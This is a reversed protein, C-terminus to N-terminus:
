TAATSIEDLAKVLKDVDKISTYVHPTVRVCSINEWVIGTTHIKYKDFLQSGLEGPTLGKVSVGCIACGYAPKLSTHITVKPMQRAKEAWYNKLYHIRQQKRLSGIGNHFNIAEGIAQEIPFSRTGLTEFKRIDNSNPKDNCLLPWIKEIKDKKIWLMGSGIPASLFKHLSTGFYDCELDPIKFDLLGFSHAGDVIVEIGKAHAMRAIKKVPMIQGVWNIVHTIHIIKTQPTIAAEFAKVIQEDNEVPFDFSIQKYVVGERAARQRWANIMNPYDQKTGIVEDGKKLDLGFIVTNLAETANRNIAIEEPNCGALEALKERLPERGMDIIRWMYYSPAENALKNYRDLADQVVKPAPSVGGNNFNIISPNVTYAQQIVSWYDEDAAIAEPSFNKIKKEATELDAALAQNFLNGASFAGLLM